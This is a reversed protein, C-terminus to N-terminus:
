KREVLGVSLDRSAITWLPKAPTEQTSAPPGSGPTPQAPRPMQAGQIESDEPCRNRVAVVHGKVIHQSVDDASPKRNGQPFLVGVKDVDDRRSFEHGKVRGVIYQPADAVKFFPAEPHGAKDEVTAAEGILVSPHPVKGLRHLQRYDDGEGPALLDSRGLLQPLGHDLRERFTGHRTLKDPQRFTHKM